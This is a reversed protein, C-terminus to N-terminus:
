SLSARICPLCEGPLRAPAFRGSICFGACPPSKRHWPEPHQAAGRGAAPLGRAVLACWRAAVAPVPRRRRAAQDPCPRAPGQPHSYRDAVHRPVGGRQRVWQESPSASIWRRVNLGRRTAAAVPRQGSRNGSWTLKFPKSTPVISHTLFTKQRRRPLALPDHLVAALHHAVGDGHAPGPAVQGDRFFAVKALAVLGARM